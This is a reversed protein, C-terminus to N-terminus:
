RDMVELHREWKIAPLFRDNGHQNKDEVVLCSTRAPAATFINRLSRPSAGL